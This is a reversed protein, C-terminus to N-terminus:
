CQLLTMQVKDIRDSGILTSKTPCKGLVEEFHFLTENMFSNNSDIIEGYQSRRSIKLKDENNYHDEFTVEFEGHGQCRLGM